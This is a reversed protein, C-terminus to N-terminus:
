TEMVEYNSVILIVYIIVRGMTNKVIQGNHKESNCIRCVKSPDIKGFCQERLLVSIVKPLIIFYFRLRWVELSEM